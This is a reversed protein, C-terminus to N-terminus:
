SNRSLGNVRVEEEKREVTFEPNLQLITIVTFGPVIGGPLNNTQVIFHQERFFFAPLEVPLYHYNKEDPM